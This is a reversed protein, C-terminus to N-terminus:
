KLICDLKEFHKKSEEKYQTIDIKYNCVRETLQSVDFKDLNRIDISLGQFDIDELLNTTKDSYIIPIVTKELTMGIVNAHFRSGIVINSNNLVSIAEDVNGRYFYKQIHNQNEASTNNLIRNIAEEDGENKCFSMYTIEYGNKIFFSTLEIITKDYEKEYQQDIKRKCDIISFVM